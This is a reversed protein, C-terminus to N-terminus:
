VAPRGEERREEARAWKFFLVSATGLVIFGGVIKMIMGAIQQDEVATLSGIPPALEYLAYIPYTAYTLFAAPVTPIFVNAILYVIRGPYPMPNLEPLPGLIPWWLVLGATLWSMDVAFSGLQSATLGDVVSPLHTALLVVNFILFAVLPRSVTRAINSAWHRRIMHRLLWRPTGAILLPPAVFAFVIYQITHVSLLYGAGLPGIPWDAAIWLVAVGTLYLPLRRGRKDTHDLSAGPAWLSEALLRCLVLAAVLVWVGVYPQWTWGWATDQAACWWSM